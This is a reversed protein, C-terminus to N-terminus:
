PLQLPNRHKCIQNYKCKLNYKFKFQIPTSCIQIRIEFNVNSDVRLIMKFLQYLIFLYSFSNNKMDQFFDINIKGFFNGQKKKINFFSYSNLNLYFNLKM